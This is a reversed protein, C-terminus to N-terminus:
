PLNLLVYVRCAPVVHATRPLQRSMVEQSTEDWLVWLGSTETSLCVVVRHIGHADKGLGM